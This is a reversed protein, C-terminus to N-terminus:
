LFISKLGRLLPFEKLQIWLVIHTLISCHLLPTSSMFCGFKLRHTCKGDLVLATQRRSLSSGPTPFFLLHCCLSTFSIIYIFHNVHIDCPLRSVIQAVVTTISQIICHKQLCEFHKENCGNAGCECQHHYVAAAGFTGKVVWCESVNLSVVSCHEVVATQTFLTKIILFQSKM